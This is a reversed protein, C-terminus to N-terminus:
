LYGQQVRNICPRTKNSNQKAALAFPKKKEGGGRLAHESGLPTLMKHPQQRQFLSQM